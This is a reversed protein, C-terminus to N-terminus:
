QKKAIFGLGLNFLTLCVVCGAGILGVVGARSRTEARQLWQRMTARSAPDIRLQVWLQHYTGAPRDLTAVYEKDPDILHMRIWSTNLEPLKSAITTKQALHKEIYRKTGDLLAADLNSRCEEISGTLETGIAIRHTDGEVSDPQAVWDPRDDPLLPLSTVSTKRSEDDLRIQSSSTFEAVAGASEIPQNISVRSFEQSADPSHRVRRMAILMAALFLVLSILKAANSIKQSCCKM